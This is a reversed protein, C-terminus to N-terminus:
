RFFTTICNRETEFTFYIIGIESNYKIIYSKNTKNVIDESIIFFNDNKVLFWNKVLDNSKDYMELTLVKGYRELFRQVSHDFSYNSDKTPKSM